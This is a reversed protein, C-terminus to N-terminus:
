GPQRAQRLDATTPLHSYYGGDLPINIGTLFDAEESALYAVLSALESPKGLRPTLHHREIMRVGEEGMHNRMSDTLMAGPTISVCRIGDKGYQTAVYQTLTLVAAKTAGYATLWLDGALAADSGMNIIVGRGASRMHPIAYKCGFLYGRINIEYASDWVAADADEVMGDAEMHGGVANNHLLDLRGFRNVTTDVLDKVASEDRYDFEFASASDGLEKVLAAAGEGNIDAVVVRVGDEVLRRCTASGLGGAGGTVIAV